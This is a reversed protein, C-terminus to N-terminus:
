HGDDEGGRFNGEYWEPRIHSKPAFMAGVQMKVVTGPAASGTIISNVNLIIDQAPIDTIIRKETDATTTTYSTGVNPLTTYIFTVFDKVTLRTRGVGTTLNFRAQVVGTGGPNSSETIQCWFIWTWTDPRGYNINVLQQSSLDFPSGTAVLDVELQNGWMHWPPIGNLMTEKESCSTLLLSLYFLPWRWM